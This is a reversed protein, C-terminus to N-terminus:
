AARHTDEETTVKAGSDFSQAFGVFFGANGAETRVM